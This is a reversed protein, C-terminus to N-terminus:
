VMLLAAAFKRQDSMLINYTRCAAGTDMVELGIGKDILPALLALSPWRITGGSGFLVIEIDLESLLAFHERDLEAFSQPPWDRIIQSPMLVVSRTLTERRVPIQLRRINDAPEAVADEDLVQPITITIEGHTYAHIGYNQLNRDITFQM